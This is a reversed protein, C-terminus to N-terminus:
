ASIRRPRSCYPLWSVCAWQPYCHVNFQYRLWASGTCQADFLPYRWGASSSHGTWRRRRYDNWCQIRCTNMICDHIFGNDESVSCRSSIYVTRCTAPVTPPLQIVWSASASDTSWPASITAYAANSCTRRQFSRQKPAIPRQTFGDRLLARFKRSFKDIYHM